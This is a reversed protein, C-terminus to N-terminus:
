AMRSRQLLAFVGLSIVLGIAGGIAAARLPRPQVPEELIFPPALLRHDTTYASDFDGLALTYQDVIANLVNLAAAGTAGAYQLQMVASGKPFDISLDKELKVLPVNLAQSVPALVTHGSAVVTQTSRFQESIDGGQPATFVFQARAAYVPKMAAAGLYAVAAAVVIPGLLTVIWRLVVKGTATDAIASSSGTAAPAAPRHEHPYQEAVANM